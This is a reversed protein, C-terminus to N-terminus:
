RSPSLPALEVFNENKEVDVECLWPEFGDGELVASLREVFEKDKTSHSIFVKMRM